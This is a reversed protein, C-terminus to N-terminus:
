IKKLSDELIVGDNKIIYERYRNQIQKVMEPDNWLKPYFTYKAGPGLDLQDVLEPNLTKHFDKSLLVIDQAELIKKAQSKNITTKYIYNGYNKAVEESLTWYMGKGFDQAGMTKTSRIYRNAEKKTDALIGRYIEIYDEEKDEEIFLNEELEGPNEEYYLESGNIIEFDSTDYKNRISFRRRLSKAEEESKCITAQEKGVLRHSIDGIYKEPNSSMRIYYQNGILSEYRPDISEKIVRIM